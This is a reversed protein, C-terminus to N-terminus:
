LSPESSGRSLSGVDEPQALEQLPLLLDLVRPGEQGAQLDVEVRLLDVDEGGLPVDEGERAAHRREVEGVLDVGLEPVVAGPRPDVALQHREPGLEVVAVDDLDDGVGVPLRAPVPQVEDTVERALLLIRWQSLVWCFRRATSIPRRRSSFSAFFYLSRALLPHELALRELPVELLLPKRAEVLHQRRIPKPL